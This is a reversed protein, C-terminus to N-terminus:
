KIGKIVIVNEHLRRGDKYVGKSVYNRSSTSELSLSGHLSDRTRGVSKEIWKIDGMLIVIKKNFMRQKFQFSNKCDDSIQTKTILHLNKFSKLQLKAWSRM